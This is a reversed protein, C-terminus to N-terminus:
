QQQQQEQWPPRGAARTYQLPPKGSSAGSPKLTKSSSLCKWAVDGTQGCIYCKKTGTEASKKAAAPKGPASPPAARAQTYKDAWQGAEACMAPKHERVWGRVEEPLTSVFQEIVLKEQVESLTTCEALWKCCLDMLNTALESYSEKKKERSRFKQQYSEESVDYKKLIAKKVAEYDGMDGTDMAM